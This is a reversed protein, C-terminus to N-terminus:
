FLVQDDNQKGELELWATIATWVAAVGYGTV